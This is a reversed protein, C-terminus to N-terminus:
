GQPGSVLSLGAGTMDSYTYPSVLGAVELAVTHLDPDVKFAKSASQDVLWVYGEVDISVGVPSSAGPITIEQVVAQTMADIKNVGGPRAIWVYGEKSVQLGRMGSYSSGTFWTETQVDFRHYSGSGAAWPNGDKDLAMGYMFEGAPTAWEDVVLTDADIRILPGSNWGMVWFDGEANVAGGYPGWNQGSWPDVEVTDLTAGTDGDLRYFVGKNITQHYHGV